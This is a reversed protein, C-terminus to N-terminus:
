GLWGTSGSARFRVDLGAGDLVRQLERGGDDLAASLTDAEVDFEVVVENTETDVEVTPPTLTSGEIAERLRALRDRDDGYGPETHFDVRFVSPFFQGVDLRRGATGGEPPLEVVMLRLTADEGHENRYVRLKERLEREDYPGESGIAYLTQEM